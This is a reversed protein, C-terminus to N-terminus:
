PSGEQGGTRASPSKEAERAEAMRRKADHLADKAFAVAEDGAFCHLVLAGDLSGEPQGVATAVASAVAGVLRPARTCGKVNEARRPEQELLRELRAAADGMGLLAAEALVQEGTRVITLIVHRTTVRRHKRKSAEAIGLALHPCKNAIAATIPASVLELLEPADLLAAIADAHGAVAAHVDALGATGDIAMRLLDATGLAPGTLARALPGDLGASKGYSKATLMDARALAADLRGRTAADGLMERVPQMDLLVSAVHMGSVTAQLREDAAQQALRLLLKAGCPWDTLELVQV